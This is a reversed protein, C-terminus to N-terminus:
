LSLFFSKTSNGDGMKEPFKWRHLYMTLSRRGFFWKRGLMPRSPLSSVPDSTLLSGKRGEM